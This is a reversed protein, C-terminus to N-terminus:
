EYSLSQRVSTNAADLAPAISALTGIVLVLTLWYLVAPTAYAFDLPMQIFSLGVVRTLFRALPLSLSVALVFSALSVIMTEAWFIVVISATDAGIARMVGIEKKREMVNISMMGALALGGVLATLVAMVLLFVILIRYLSVIQTRIEALSLTSFVSMGGDNLLAQLESTVRTQAAADHRHYQVEVAVTRDTRNLLRDLSELSVFVGTRMKLLDQHIGIVTWQTEPYAAGLNLTVRDGVAVGEQEAWRQNVVIAAADGPGPWRGAVVKERYFQTDLPGALLVVEVESGSALTLGALGFHWAEARAVDPHEELLPVVLSARQEREFVFLADIGYHGEILNGITLDFSRDTSLVAIFMAGGLMLTALTLGLRAPARVSNRLALALLRPLGRIRAALRSLAHAGSGGGLGYDALAQRVTIRAGQWLPLAAAGLPAALGVALMVALAPASPRYPYLDINLREALVAALRYGGRGAVPMAIVAGLLGYALVTLGYVRAVLGADAGIAKMIAIQRIQQTVLSSITNTVLFSSLVLALVGLIAMVLILVDLVDQVPYVAPNKLTLRNISYGARELWRRASEGVQAQEGLTHATLYVTGFREHGQVSALTQRGILAVPAGRVATPPEDQQHATGVITLIHEQGVAQIVVADGIRAQMEALSSREVVMQGRQPPWAGSSPAIINVTQATLDPVALLDLSQWEAAPDSALRYRVSVVARGQAAAVDSLRGLAAVDEATAGGPIVIEVHAPNIAGYRRYLDTTLYDWAAVIMGVSLVGAAVSLAVLLTRARQGWLDRVIKRYITRLAGIM